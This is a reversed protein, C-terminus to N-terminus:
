NGRRRGKIKFEHELKKYEKNRVPRRYKYIYVYIYTQIGRCLKAGDLIASM